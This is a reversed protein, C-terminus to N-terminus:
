LSMNVSEPGSLQPLFFLSSLTQTLVSLAPLDALQPASHENERKRGVPDPGSNWLWMVSYGHVSLFVSCDGPKSFEKSPSPPSKRGIWKSVLPKSMNPMFITLHLWGSNSYLNQCRLDMLLIVILRSFALWDTMNVQWTWFHLTWLRQPTMWLHRTLATLWSCSALVVKGALAAFHLDVPLAETADAAWTAPPGRPAGDAGWFVLEDCIRRNM